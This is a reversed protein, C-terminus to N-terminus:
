EGYEIATIRWAGPQEGLQLAVAEGRRKGTIARALPSTFSVKGAKIDAEDVGVIQFTRGGVGEDPQLTVRAGFRVEDQPQTGPSIVQASQLRERLLRLKEALVTEEIRREAEDEITQRATVIGAELEAQEALLQQYGAPTVYNTQGAPLPPRPPIVPLEERDSEKVFGRSM